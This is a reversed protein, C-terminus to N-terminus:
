VTLSLDTSTFVIDLYLRDLISNYMSTNRAIELPRLDGDRM